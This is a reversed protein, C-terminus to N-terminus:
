DTKVEPLKLIKKFKSKQHKVEVQRSTNNQKLIPNLLLNHVKNLELNNEAIIKPYRKVLRERRKRSFEESVLVSAVWDIIWM